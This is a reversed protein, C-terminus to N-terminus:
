SRLKFYKKHAWFTQKNIRVRLADVFEGDVEWVTGISGKPISPPMVVDDIVCVEDNVQFEDFLTLQTVHAGIIRKPLEL